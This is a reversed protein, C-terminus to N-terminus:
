VVRRDPNREVVVKLVYDGIYILYCPIKHETMAANFLEKIKNKSLTIQKQKIVKKVDILCEDTDLDMPQYWVAGSNIHKRAKEEQDRGQKSISKKNRLYKPLENM